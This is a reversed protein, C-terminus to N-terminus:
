FKSLFISDSEAKVKVIERVVDNPIEISLVYHQLKWDEEIRKLV